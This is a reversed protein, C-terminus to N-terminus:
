KMNNAVLSGSDDERGYLQCLADARGDNRGAQARLAGERRGDSRRVRQDRGGWCVCPIHVRLAYVFPAAGHLM